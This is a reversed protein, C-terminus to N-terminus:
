KDCVLSGVRVGLLGMGRTVEEKDISEGEEKDLVRYVGRIIDSTADPATSNATNPGAETESGIQQGVNMCLVIEQDRIRSELENMTLSAKRAEQFVREIIIETGSDFYAATDESTAEDNNDTYDDGRLGAHAKARAMRSEHSLDPMQNTPWHPLRVIVCTKNDTSGLSDCLAFVASIGEELTEATKIKYFHQASM